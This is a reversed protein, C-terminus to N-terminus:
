SGDRELDAQKKVNEDTGKRLNKVRDWARSVAVKRPHQGARDKELSGIRHSPEVEKGSRRNRLKINKMKGKSELWWLSVIVILGTVGLSV